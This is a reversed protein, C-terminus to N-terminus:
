IRSSARLNKMKGWTVKPTEKISACHRLYLNMLNQYAIGTQNALNKFYDITDEDIRITITKKFFKYYPNKRRQMKALDYEKKMFKGTTNEVNKKPQRAHM